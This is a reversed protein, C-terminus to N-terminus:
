ATVDHGYLWDLRALFRRPALLGVAKVAGLGALRAPGRLHYNRANAEAAAVARRVRPARDAGYGDLRDEEWARALCWADELALNAGQALFPLTPHAADGLLALGDRAWTGAVPHRFLGWVRVRDVHSLLGRVRGSFHRFAHRLDGPDAAHHWGEETWERREQVAVLNVRGGPLPYSVVHQGPAMWIRAAPPAEAAVVARWAVQGTFFPTDAGNLVPRVVSRIGDAGVTLDPRVTEGDVAFSGDPAVEAIRAGLRIEVGAARAAGALMDILDSRHFFRYPPGELGTLDFRAVPKGTLGDMPEVAEAAIGRRAAEDALGLADLVRGGNPTIQIGAGIETLEPAQEFLTVGAGRRAVAAAVALGGIGGGIVAVTM